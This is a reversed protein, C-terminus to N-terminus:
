VGNQERKKDGGCKEMKVKGSKTNIIAVRNGSHVSNISSKWLRSIRRM